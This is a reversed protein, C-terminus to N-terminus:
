RASPCPSSGFVSPPWASRGDPGPLGRRRPHGLPPPDTRPGTDLTASMLRAVGHLHGRLFGAPPGRGTDLLPRRIISPHTWCSASRPSRTSGRACRRRCSAGPRAGATSCPRGAWNRWGPACNRRTSDTRAITTSATTSATCRRALPAGEQHHRLQRHRLPHDHRAPRESIGCCSMSAWRAGPRRM